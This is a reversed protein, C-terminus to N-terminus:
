LELKSYHAGICGSREQVVPHNQEVTGEDSGVDQLDEETSSARGRSPQLTFQEITSKRDSFVTVTHLSRVLHAVLFHCLQWHDKVHRALTLLHGVTFM